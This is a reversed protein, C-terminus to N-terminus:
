ADRLTALKIAQDLVDADGIHNALVFVLRANLADSDSKELGDHAALLRAYFGDADDLNPILTLEAM